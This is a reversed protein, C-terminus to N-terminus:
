GRYHTNWFRWCVTMLYSLGFAVVFAVTFPTLLALWLREGVFPPPNNWLYRFPWIAILSSPAVFIPEIPPKALLAREGISKLILGRDIWEEGYFRPSRSKELVRVRSPPTRRRKKPKSFESLATIADTIKTEAEIPAPV